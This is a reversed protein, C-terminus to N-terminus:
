LASEADREVLRQVRSFIERAFTILSYDKCKASHFSIDAVWMSVHDIKRV